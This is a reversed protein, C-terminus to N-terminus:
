NLFKKYFEGCELHIYTGSANRKSVFSNKYRDVGKGRKGSKIVVDDKLLMLSALFAGFEYSCCKFVLNELNDKIFMGIQQHIYAREIPHECQISISRDNALNKFHETMIFQPYRNKCKFDQGPAGHQKQCIWSLSSSTKWYRLVAKSNIKGASFNLLLNQLTASYSYYSTLTNLDKLYDGIGDQYISGKRANFYLKDLNSCQTKDRKM